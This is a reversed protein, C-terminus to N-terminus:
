KLLTTTMRRSAIVLGLASMILLYAVHVLLGASMQDLTIGRVLQVSQYLPSLQIVFRATASHYASLPTFTASFLFMAVQVTAVVDFDQWSRILTSVAMGVAGFAFGILIAAFFAIVALGATTLDKFVMIVLFAAAYLAGRAMAWMLEGLAIEMPRVPTALVRDFVKSWKMKAFFNFTSETMAGTMASWALMAPAVFMAYSIVSGDPLHIPGILKGVGIGISFLYLLPEFFGSVIMLWYLSQLATINRNTVSAARKISDDIRGARAPAFATIVM